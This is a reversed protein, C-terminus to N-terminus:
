QEAVWRVKCRRHPAVQPAATSWVGRRGTPAPSGSPTAAQSGGSGWPTVWGPHHCRPSVSLCLLRHQRPCPVPRAQPHWHWVGNGTRACPAPDAQARGPASGLRPSLGAQPQASSVAAPVSLARRATIACRAPSPPTELGPPSLSKHGATSWGVRCPTDAKRARVGATEKDLAM